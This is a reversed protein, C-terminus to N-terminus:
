ASKAAMLRRPEDLCRRGAGETADSSFWLDDPWDPWGALLERRGEADQGMIWITHPLWMDDGRIRICFNDENLGFMDLDLDRVDFKYEDTRDREREDHPLDPFPLQAVLTGQLVSLIQLDFGDDTGANAATSTTHIVWLFDLRAM